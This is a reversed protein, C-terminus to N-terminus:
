FDDNLEEPIESDSDTSENEEEAEETAGHQSEDDAEVDEAIEEAAEAEMSPASETEAEESTIGCYKELFFPTPKYTRTNCMNGMIEKQSVEETLVQELMIDPNKLIVRVMELNMKYEKYDLSDEIMKDYREETKKIAQEKKALLKSVVTQKKWANKAYTLVRNRENRNLM